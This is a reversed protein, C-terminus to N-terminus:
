GEYGIKILKGGHQTHWDRALDALHVLDKSMTAVDNSSSPEINSCCLILDTDLANCIPFYAQAQDFAAQRKLPDTIGEIGRLPQLCNVRLHLSDLLHRLDRAAKLHVKPSDALGRELVYLEVYKLWDPLFLEVAAFGAAAAARLKNELRHIECSGLSLTAIAYRRSSSM